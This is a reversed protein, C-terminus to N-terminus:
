CKLDNVCYSPLVVCMDLRERGSRRKDKKIKGEKVKKRDGRKYLSTIIILTM